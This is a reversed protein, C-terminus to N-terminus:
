PQYVIATLKWTGGTKKFHHDCVCKSYEGFLSFSGDSNVLFAADKPFDATDLKVESLFQQRSYKKMTKESGEIFRAELPFQTMEAAANKDRAAVAGSFKTYFSQFDADTSTLKIWVLDKLAYFLYSGSDPRFLYSVDRENDFVAIYGSKFEFAPPNANSFIGSGGFLGSFDKVFRAKTYTESDQGYDRAFPFATLAAAANKDPRGMASSFKTYFTRFKPPTQDLTLWRQSYGAVAFFLILLLTGTQKM